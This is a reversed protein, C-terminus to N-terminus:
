ITKGLCETIRSRNSELVPHEPYALQHSDKWESTVYNLILSRRIGNIKRPLFGHFTRKSPTFILASNPKFPVQVAPTKEDFFLDTGLDRHRPDDSLYILMTFRKVGLDTHPRLWFGRTDLCYELRVFTDSLDAGFLNQIQLATESCQFIETVNRLHHDSDLRGGALYTRSENHIERTGSVGGLCPAELPLAALYARLQPEFIDDAIWHTFPSEFKRASRLGCLIHDTSYPPIKPIIM